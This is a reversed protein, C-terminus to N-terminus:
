GEEGFRRFEEKASEPVGQPVIGLKVKAGQVSQRIEEVIEPNALTTTDGVDIFNSIAAIVRRMIKGSRTKPLDESVWVAGPTAIPGIIQRVAVRVDAVVKDPDFGPKLSVYIEPVRGKLEDYAPVAAAEGVAEVTMAASELEKTGLRHGAVNIVDDIRGVIRYYGDESKMAGDGTMYPWDRWDKSNPDKNYRAFYTEVFRDPDGWITQMFGPWPNSICINGGRGAEVENGNEDLIV